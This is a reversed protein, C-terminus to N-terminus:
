ICRWMTFYFFFINIIQPKEAFSFVRYVQIISLPEPAGVLIAIFQFRITQISFIKIKCRLWTGGVDEEKRLEQSYENSRLWNISNNVM